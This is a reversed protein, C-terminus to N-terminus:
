CFMFDDATLTGSFGVTLNGTLTASGLNCTKNDPVVVSDYPGGTLDGKCKTVKAASAPTAALTGILAACIVLKVLVAFYRKASM